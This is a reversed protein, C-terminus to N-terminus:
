YIELNNASIYKEVLNKLQDIFAKRISLKVSENSVDEFGELDKNRKILKESFKINNEVLEIWTNLRDVIDCSMIGWYQVEEETTMNVIRDFIKDSNNLVRNMVASIYVDNFLVTGGASFIDRVNGCWVLCKYIMWPTFKGYDGGLVEPFLAVGDNLYKGKEECDLDTYATIADESYWTSKSSRLLERIRRNLEAGESMNLLDQAKNKTLYDEGKELEMNLQFRPSHTVTLDEICEKYRKLRTEPVDGWKGMIVYTEEIENRLSEYISGGPVKWKKSETKKVELGIKKGTTVDTIVFDPFKQVSHYIHNQNIGAKVLAKYVLMEFDTGSLKIKGAKRINDLDEQVYEKVSDLLKQYDEKRKNM